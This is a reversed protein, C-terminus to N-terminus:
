RVRFLSYSQYQGLPELGPGDRLWHYNNAPARGQWQAEVNAVDILLLTPRGDAALASVQATDLAWLEHTELRSYYSFTNTLSFTLLQANAPAVAEVQAVIALEARQRSIFQQTLQWGAVAQWALGAGLLLLLLRSRWPGLWAAAQAAGLGV